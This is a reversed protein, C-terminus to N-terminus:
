QSHFLLQWLLQVSGPALTFLLQQFQWSALQSYINFTRLVSSLATNCTPSLRHQLGDTWFIWFIYVTARLHTDRIKWTSTFQPISGGTNLWAKTYHNNWKGLICTQADSSLTGTRRTSTNQSPRKNGDMYWFWYSQATGRFSSLARGEVEQMYLKAVTPSVPSDMPCGHKQRYFRQQVPLLHHQSLPRATQMIDPLQNICVVFGWWLFPQLLYLFLLLNHKIWKIVYFLYMIVGSSKLFGSWM